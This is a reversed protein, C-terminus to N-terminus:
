TLGKDAFLRQDALRSLGEVTDADDPFHAVGVSFRVGLRGSSRGVVDRLRDVLADAAARGSGSPAIVAFEDGGVRAAIDGARLCSRLDAGFCRLAEDGRGHGHRDNIDKFHDLDILGLMFPWGYRRSRAATQTLADDYSRRNLLGTLVDRSADHRAAELMLAVEAMDTVFTVADTDGLPPDTYLGPVARDVPPLPSGAPRDWGARHLRFAQRRQRPGDVVLLADRVGYHSAVVELAQHIFAVGSSARALAGPLDLLTLSAHPAASHDAGEVNLM